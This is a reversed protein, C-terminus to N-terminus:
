GVLVGPVWNIPGAFSRVIGVSVHLLRHDAMLCAGTWPHWLRPVFLWLCEGEDARM